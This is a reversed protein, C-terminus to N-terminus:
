LSDNYSKQLFQELKESNSYEPLNSKNGYQKLLQEYYSGLDIVESLKLKGNRIAVLLERSPKHLPFEMFGRLLYESGIMGLRVIHYAYKTDYGYKEVLDKRNVDKQGRLGLLRETQAQMYGLFKKGAQKSWFCHAHQYLADGVPSTVVAPCYVVEIMNPNGAAALRCYKQLSYRATDPNKLQDSEFMPTMYTIPELLLEVYDTDSDETAVGYAQSGVISKLITIM